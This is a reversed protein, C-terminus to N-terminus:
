REPRWVYVDESIRSPASPLLRGSLVRIRNALICDGIDPSQLAVGEFSPLQLSPQLHRGTALMESGVIQLVPLPLSPVLEVCHYTFFKHLSSSM